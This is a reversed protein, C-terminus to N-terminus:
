SVGGDQNIGLYREWQVWGRETAFGWDRRRRGVLVLTWTPKRHLRAIRHMDEARRYGLSLWGRRVAILERPDIDVGDTESREGLDEDFRAPWAPRLEDYGGCLVLSLFSWPHDHLHRDKDPAAIKHLYIAFWPTQLVRWRRLYLEGTEPDRIDFRELFAWRRTM